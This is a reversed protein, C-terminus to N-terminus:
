EALIRIAATAPDIKGEATAEVLAAFEDESIRKEARRVALEQVAATLDRLRRRRRRLEFEDGRTLYTRHDAIAQWLVDLGEGTQGVCRIIPTKWPRRAGLALASSLDLVTDDTGPRDAKTIAFVDAIELIGAKSAQVDDGWGPNIVVVTTDAVAGIDIQVQGVGVTEVILWDFGFAELARLYAPVATALGGLQGRTAMSRVYVGPDHTHETMRIRDGLLAGGSLPSSPDIAVVAVTQDARRVTKILENTLTSKGAGPAGTIGVVYSTATSGLKGISEQGRPDGAEIWSLVRALSRRDSNLLGAVVTDGRAAKTM